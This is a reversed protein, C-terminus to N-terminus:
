KKQLPMSVMLRCMRVDDVLQCNCRTKSVYKNNKKEDKKKEYVLQFAVPFDKDHLLSM